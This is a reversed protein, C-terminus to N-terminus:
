RATWLQGNPIYGTSEFLIHTFSQSQFSRSNLILVLYIQHITGFNKRNAHYNAFHFRSGGLIGARACLVFARSCITEEIDYVQIKDWLNRMMRDNEMTSGDRMRARMKWSLIM